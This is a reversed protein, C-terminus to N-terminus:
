RIDRRLEEGRIMSWLAGHDIACPSWLQEIRGRYSRDDGSTLLLVCRQLEALICPRVETQLGKDSIPLVGGAAEEELREESDRMASTKWIMDELLRSILVSKLM